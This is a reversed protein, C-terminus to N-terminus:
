MVDYKTGLVFDLGEYSVKVHSSILWFTVHICVLCLLLVKDVLLGILM